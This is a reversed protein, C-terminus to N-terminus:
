NTNGSSQAADRSRKTPRLQLPAVPGLVRRGGAAPRPPRNGRRLRGCISMSILALVILAAAALVWTLTGSGLHRLRSLIDRRQEEKVEPTLEAPPPALVPVVGSESNTHLAFTLSLGNEDIAQRWAFKQETPVWYANVAVGSLKDWPLNVPPPSPRSPPKCQWRGGAIARPPEDILDSFVFLYRSVIRADAELYRVALNFAGGVDTCGAYDSRARFRETWADASQEKLTRLNGEWLVEPLADLCIVTVRDRTGEWRRLQRSAIDDLLEVTQDIAGAQRERFSGSGDIIVVIDNRPELKEARIEQPKVIEIATLAIMLVVTLTNPRM